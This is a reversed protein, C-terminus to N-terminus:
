ITIADGHILISEYFNNSWKASEKVKYITTNGGDVIDIEDPLSQRMDGASLKIKTFIKVMSTIRYGEPELDHEDGGRYPEVRARINIETEAGAVFNGEDNYDGQAFVRHTVTKNLMRSSIRITM